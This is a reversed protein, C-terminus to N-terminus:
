KQLQDGISRGDVYVRADRVVGTNDFSLFFVLPLKVAKGTERHHGQAVGEWVARNGQTMRSQEVHKWDSFFDGFGLFFKRIEERSRQPGGPPEGLVHVQIADAAFLDAARAPDGGPPMAANLGNIYRTLYTDASQAQAYNAQLASLIAVAFFITHASIARQLLAGM